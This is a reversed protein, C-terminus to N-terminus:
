LYVLELLRLPGKPLHQLLGRAALVVRVGRTLESPDLQQQRRAARRGGGRERLRARGGRARRKNILCRLEEAFRKLELRVIHVRGVADADDTHGLPPQVLRHLDECLNTLRGGRALMRREVQRLEVRRQELM